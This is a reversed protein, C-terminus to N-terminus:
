TTSESPKSIKDIRCRSDHQSWLETPVQHEVEKFVETDTTDILESTMPTLKKQSIVVEQPIRMLSTACLIKVYNKDASYFILPHETPEWKSQKAKKMMPGLDKAEWNEYMYLCM